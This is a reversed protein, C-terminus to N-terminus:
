ENEAFYKLANYLNTIYRGGAMAKRVPKSMEINMGKTARKMTGCQFSKTARYYIDDPPHILVEIDTDRFFSKIKATQTSTMGKTRIQIQKADESYGHIEVIKKCNGFYSIYKEFVQKAIPNDGEEFHNVPIDIRRMNTAIVTWYHNYEPLTFRNLIKKTIIGTYLDGKLGSGLIVDHPAGIVIHPPTSFAPTHTITGTPYEHTHISRDVVAMHGVSTLRSAEAHFTKKFLSNSWVIAYRESFGRAHTFEHLFTTVSWRGGLTIHHTHGCYSSNGSAQPSPDNMDGEYSLTARRIHYIDCLENLLETYARLRQENTGRWVLGKLKFKKVAIITKPDFILNSFIYERRTETYDGHAQSLTPYLTQIHYESVNGSWSEEWEQLTRPLRTVPPTTTRVNRNHRNVTTRGATTRRPHRRVVTPRTPSRTPM